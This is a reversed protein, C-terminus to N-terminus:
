PPGARGLTRRVTTRDVAGWAYKYPEAGRLFDVLACGDGVATEILHDMALSGASEASFAPDFGGLYPAAVGGHRLEYIVAAPTAGFTVEHLRALGAALLGPLAARHFARVREDALVGDEGREQWRAGHLAFLTDLFRGADDVLTRRVPGRAEALRLCRRISRRKRAPVAELGRGAIALTPRVAQDARGDTWGPPARLRLAAADPLCDELSLVAWDAMADLADLIAPGADPRAPHVLIDLDDSIGIGLPLLRRGYPGDERWLPALGILDDGDFVAVARVEAPRFVATWPILWAPSQFPSATGIRRWLAWWAPELAELEQLRTLVRTRLVDGRETALRSM